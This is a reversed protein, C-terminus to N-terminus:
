WRRYNITNDERILLRYPRLQNAQGDLIWFGNQNEPERIFSPNVRSMIILRYKKGGLPIAGAYQTAVNLDPTTYVGKNCLQGPHRCDKAGAFKQGAGPKLNDHIITKIIGKIQEGQMRVGFGHYAVAWEEARGDCSLWDTDGYRKIVEIGFAIWGVPVNYKEGGRLSDEPQFYFFTNGKKDLYNPNCGCEKILYDNTLQELKEKDTLYDIINIDINNDNEEVEEEEEEKKNKIEKTLVLFKLNITAEFMNIVKDQEFRNFDITLDELWHHISEKFHTKIENIFVNVTQEM